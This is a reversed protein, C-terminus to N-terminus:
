LCGVYAAVADYGQDERKTWAAAWDIPKSQVCGRCVLGFVFGNEGPETAAKPQNGPLLAVRGYAGTEGYSGRGSSLCYLSAIITSTECLRTQATLCTQGDPLVQIGGLVSRDRARKQARASRSRLADGKREIM